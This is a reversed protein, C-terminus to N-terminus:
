LFYPYERSRIALESGEVQELERDIDDFYSRQILDRIKLNVNNIQEQISAVSLGQKKGAILEERLLTQKAVYQELLNFDIRGKLLEDFKLPHNFIERQKEKILKLEKLKENEKSFLLKTASVTVFNDIKAGTLAKILLTTAPDYNKGGLGHIFLDYCFVRLLFTTMMGRPAIIYDSPLNEVFSRSPENIIGDVHINRTKNNFFIPTRKQNKSDILWFPLEIRDENIKMNPFPNALNKIKQQARYSNLVENYTSVLKELDEFLLRIVQLITPLQMLKSIPLFNLKNNQLDRQRLTTLASVLSKNSFGLLSLKFNNLKELQVQDLKVNLPIEINNIAKQFMYLGASDALNISAVEIHANSYVPLKLFVGNNEDTDIIVELQNLNKNRCYTELIISKAILGSHYVVPQHGYGIFPYNFELKEIQTNLSKSYEYSANIIENKLNHLLSNSIEKQFINLNEIKPKYKASWNDLDPEIYCDSLTLYSM